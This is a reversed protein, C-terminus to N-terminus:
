EKDKNEKPEEDKYNGPSLIAPVFVLLFLVCLIFQPLFYALFAWNFFMFITGLVLETFFYMWVLSDVPLGVIQGARSKSSAFFLGFALAVFAISEFLISFWFQRSYDKIILFMVVLYAAFLIGITLALSLKKRDM